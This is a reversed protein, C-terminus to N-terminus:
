AHTIETRQRLWPATRAILRRMGFDALLGLGGIVFIGVIIIDTRALQEADVIMYGLGAASAVLEAGVLARWGQGLAIRLGIVIAPLAAPLVIRRLISGRSLACARGVEVLKPDCQAIGGLAGLFIPFFCALVIIGIKQTEGIGLWLILLPMMALPPIQRLFELVPEFARQAAPSVGFLFALPLALATAIVYGAVIRVISVAVHGALTGDGVLEWGTLLVTQPTPLLFGSVLGRASAQWWAVAFAAIVCTAGFRKSFRSIAM